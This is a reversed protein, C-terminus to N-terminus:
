LSNVLAQAGPNQELFEIAATLRKINQQHHGLERKLSELKDREAGETNRCDDYNAM